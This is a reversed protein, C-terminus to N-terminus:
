ALKREIWQGTVPSNSTFFINDGIWERLENQTINVYIADGSYMTTKGPVTRKLLVKNGSSLPKYYEEETDDETFVITEAGFNRVVIDKPMTIALAKTVLICLDFKKEM